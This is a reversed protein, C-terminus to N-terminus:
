DGVVGEAAGYMPSSDIVSGGAEFLVGLVDALRARQDPAPGVDFAQWTGCGVVPLMEDSAPIKRRHMRAEATPQGLSRSTALFAGGLGLFTSRKLVPAKM